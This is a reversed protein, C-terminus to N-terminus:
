FKYDHFVDYAPLEIINYQLDVREFFNARMRYGVDSYHGNAM